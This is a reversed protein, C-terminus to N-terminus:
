GVLSHFTRKLDCLIGKRSYDHYLASANPRLSQKFSLGNRVPLWQQPALGAPKEPVVNQSAAELSTLRGFPHSGAAAEYLTCCAAFVDDSASPEGGQLREPGAYRLSFSPLHLSERLGRTVPSCAAGAQAIATAVNFDILAIRREPALFVNSPKVDGHVIGHSHLFRLTDFLSRGLEAAGDGLGSPQRLLEEQLTHGELLEMSFCIGYPENHLDFVRVVGPHALHRLFCFEQALALRAQVNDTLAPRLRKIAVMPNGDGYEVRRLDLAAYVECVGGTGLLKELLFREEGAGPIISIVSRAPDSNSSAQFASRKRRGKKKRNKTM